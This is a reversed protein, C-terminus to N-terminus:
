RAATTVREERTPAATNSSVPKAGGSAIRSILEQAAASRAIYAPHDACLLRVFGVSATQPTYIWNGGELVHRQPEGIDSVGVIMIGEERYVDFLQDLTVDRPLGAAYYAAMREPTPVRVCRGGLIYPLTPQALDGTADNAYKVGSAGAWAVQRMPLRVYHLAITGRPATARPGQVMPLSVQTEPKDEIQVSLPVDGEPLSLLAVYFRQPFTENHRTDVAATAKMALGALAAGLGALQAGRDNSSVAVAAGGVVLGTGIYSKALRMDELNNWRVDAAMRNVDTVVPWQSTRGGATVLLANADSMTTPPYIAIANDMGSGTKRPPTGYTCVLVTNYNGTAITDALSALAPAVQKLTNVADRLEENEGLSRAAIAKMVYGFEFDSAVARYDVGLSDAGSSRNGSARILAERERVQSSPSTRDDATDSDRAASKHLADSFDRLLFLSDDASARANGWEGQTADFISVYSYALAQEYPEGKYVRTASEGAIFTSITKDVNLGQSRLMDYLRDAYAESAEPVGDAVALTLLKMRNLIFDRDSPQPKAGLAVRERARGFEDGAVLAVVGADPQYASCGSAVLAGAIALISWLGALSKQLNGMM